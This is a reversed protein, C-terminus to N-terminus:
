SAQTHRKATRARYILLRAVVSTAYDVDEVIPLERSKGHVVKNRLQRLDRLLDVESETVPANDNKIAEKLRILLPASNLQGLVETVHKQQAPNLVPLSGTITAVQSATFLPEVTTGFCYFEIAEWLSHVRALLDSERAARGLALFALKEQLNLSPLVDDLPRAGGMLRATREQAAMEPRRLWHRGSTVGRVSVLGRHSPQALSEQRHFPVPSGAPLMAAGSRLQVTLWALALDIVALGKEEAELMKTATVSARAYASATFAARLSDKIELGGIADHDAPLFEAEAFRTAKEATVGDVPVTVEFTELPLSELGAIKLREQRIGSGRALAHILEPATV